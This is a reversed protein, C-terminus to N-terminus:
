IKNYVCQQYEYDDLDGQFNEECDETDEYPNDALYSYEDECLYNRSSIPTSRKYRSRRMKLKKKKPDTKHLLRM